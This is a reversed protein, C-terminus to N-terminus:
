YENSVGQVASLQIFYLGKSMDYCLLQPDDDWDSLVFRTCERGEVTHTTTGSRHIHGHVMVSQGTKKFLAEVAEPVVDMYNGPVRQRSLRRVGNVLRHRLARPLCLFARIFVPNRTLARFWQHRTDRTCLSDGHVLLLPQGALTIICPESLLRMHARAAFAEGLLFDRNGHLFCTEVGAEALSKLRAAIAESWSDMTDDGAWAHFFDGLLYVRRVHSAAFAIFAEFRECVAKEDPHLHLDSIFVAEIM